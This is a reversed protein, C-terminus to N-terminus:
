NSQTFVWGQQFPHELPPKEELRELITQCDLYTRDAEDFRGLSRLSVGLNNMADAHYKRVRGDGPRNEAVHKWLEIVERYGETAQASRGSTLSFTFFEGCDLLLYSATASNPNDRAVQLDIARAKRYHQEAEDFRKEQTCLWALHEHCRAAQ